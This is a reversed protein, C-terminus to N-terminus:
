TYTTETSPLPWDDETISSWFVWIMVVALLTFLSEFHGANIAGNTANCLHVSIVYQFIQGIAFLLMAAVLYFMPRIEGLVRVVIVAELIFFISLFVLPVLQYLTYLSYSRNPAILTDDWYGTWREHSSHRIVSLLIVELSMTCIETRRLNSGKFCDLYTTSAEIERELLDTEEILILMADLDTRDKNSTLKELAHKADDRRGQRVLWYPSEPAFCLGVLLIVPWVWQIAFPIKYALADTRSEVGAATGQAIFQGIVFALNVSATLVGRLALPCVDSAYVPAIVVYFGYGLGAFIEGICLITLNSSFFQMFIWAISWCCCAALTRKRGFKELPWGCALAGVLQGVANGMGLGTQWPASIIYEGEYFQGYKKQFAPLAYFSSVLQPDFGAMIVAICFFASWFVAKPYLKAGKWFGLEHETQIVQKVTDLVTGHKEDVTEETQIKDNM